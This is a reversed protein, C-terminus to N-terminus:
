VPCIECRGPFAKMLEIGALVFDIEGALRRLESQSKHDALESMASKLNDLEPWGKVDELFKQAYRSIYSPNSYVVPRFEGPKAGQTLTEVGAPDRDGAIMIINGFVWSRVIEVDRIDDPPDDELKEKLREWLARSAAEFHSAKKHWRDWYVWLKSDRTHERLSKLLHQEWPPPNHMRSWEGTIYHPAGTGSYPLGLVGATSITGQAATDGPASANIQKRIDQRVFGKLQDFHNRLEEGLLQKRVEDAIIDRNKPAVYGAVTQRHVDLEEAIASITMGELYLRKMDTIKEETIRKKRQKGQGPAVM